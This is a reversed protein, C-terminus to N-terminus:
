LLSFQIVNAKRGADRSVSCGEEWDNKPLSQVMLRQWDDWLVQTAWDHLEVACIYHEPKALSFSEQINIFGHDM